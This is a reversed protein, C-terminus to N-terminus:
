EDWKYGYGRISVISSSKLKRRLLKIHVDVVREEVEEFRKDWLEEIFEERTIAKGMNLLLMYLLGFEKRALNIVEGNQTVQRADIDLIIEDARSVLQKPRSRVPERLLRDVYKLLVDLRLDKSFYYDVSSAIAEKETDPTPEATLIITKAEPQVRKVFSLFRNGDMMDMKLDSIVLDYKNQGILEVGAIADPADDIQYGESELVRKLNKRYSENDEVLLISMSIGKRKEGSFVDKENKVGKIIFFIGFIKLCCLTYTIFFININM